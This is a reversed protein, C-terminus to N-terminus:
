NCIVSVMQNMIPSQHTQSKDGNAFNFNYGIPSHSIEWVQSFTLGFSQVYILRWKLSIWM